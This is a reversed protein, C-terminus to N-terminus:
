LMIGHAVASATEEDKVHATIALGFAVAHGAGRGTIINGDTAVGERVHKVGRDILAPEFGDYCTMTKGELGPLKCLVVSPAACIAAVSGGEAYHGLMLDMLRECAALNSSGPMGGPFVMIDEGSTGELVVESLFEPFSLDTGVPINHASTVTKYDYISVTKVGIGGRRMVDLPAMAETEEFGEAFFMYAGKM